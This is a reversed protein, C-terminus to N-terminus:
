DGESKNKDMLDKLFKDWDCPQTIVEDDFEFLKKLFIQSGDTHDGLLQKYKIYMDKDMYPKFLTSIYYQGFAMGILYLKELDFNLCSETITKQVFDDIDSKM